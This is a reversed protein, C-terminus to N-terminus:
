SARWQRRIARQVVVPLALLSLTAAALLGFERWAGLTDTPHTLRLHEAIVASEGPGLKAGHWWRMRAVTFRWGIAGRGAGNMVALAHCSSCRERLLREGPPRRAWDEAERELHAREEAALREADRAERHRQAQLEEAVRAQEAPSTIVKGSRYEDDSMEAHAKLEPWLLAMCALLATM